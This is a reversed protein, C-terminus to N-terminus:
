ARVVGFPMPAVEFSFGTGSQITPDDDTFARVEAESGFEVVGMGFAGRPDAVLGFAIVHGSTIGDRWYVAHQQMLATEDPTMTQAFDDRPGMLKCFFTM